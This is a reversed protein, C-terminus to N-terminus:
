PVWGPWFGYDIRNWDPHGMAPSYPGLDQGNISIHVLRGNDTWVQIRESGQWSQKQGSGLVGEFQVVGDVTVRLSADEVAALGVTVEGPAPQVVPPRFPDRPNGAANGPAGPLDGATLLAVGGLTALLLGAAVPVLMRMRLSRRQEASEVPGPTEWDPSQPLPPPADDVVPGPREVTETRPARLTASLDTRLARFATLLFLYLLAITAIRLALLTLPWADVTIADPM